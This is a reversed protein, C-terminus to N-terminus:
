RKGGSARDARGASTSAGEQENADTPRTYSEKRGTEPTMGRLLAVPYPHTSAHERMNQAMRELGAQPVLGALPALVAKIADELLAPDFKPPPDEDPRQTKM